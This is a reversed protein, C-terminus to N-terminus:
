SEKEKESFNPNKFMMIDEAQKTNLNELQNKFSNKQFWVDFDSLVSNTFEEKQKQIEEFKTNM